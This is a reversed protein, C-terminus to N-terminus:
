KVNQHICVRFDNTEANEKSAKDGEQAQPSLALIPTM